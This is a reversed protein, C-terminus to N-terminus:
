QMNNEVLLEEQYKLLSKDTNYLSKDYWGIRENLKWINQCSIMDDSDHGKM